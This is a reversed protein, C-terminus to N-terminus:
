FTGRQINYCTLDSNTTLLITSAKKVAFHHERLCFDQVKVCIINFTWPVINLHTCQQEEEDQLWWTCKHQLRNEWFFWVRIFSQPFLMVIDMLFYESIYHLISAHNYQDKDNQPSWKVILRIHKRYLLISISQTNPFLLNTTGKVRVISRPKAETLLWLRTSLLSAIGEYRTLLYIINITAPFYKVLINFYDSFSFFCM